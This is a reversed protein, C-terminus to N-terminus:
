TSLSIVVDLAASITRLRDAIKDTYASVTAEVWGPRELDGAITSLDSVAVAIARELAAIREDNSMRLEVPYVTHGCELCVRLASSQATQERTLDRDCGPCYYRRTTMM